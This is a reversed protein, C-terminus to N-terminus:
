QAKQTVAVPRTTPVLRVASLNTPGWHEATRPHFEVSLDGPHDIHIIGLPQDQYEDWQKTAAATGFWEQGAIKMSFDHAAGVSATRAIITYDGPTVHPATWSVWDKWNDWYGIDLGSPYCDLHISGHLEATTPDLLIEGPQAIVKAGTPTVPATAQVEAYLEGITFPKNRDIDLL